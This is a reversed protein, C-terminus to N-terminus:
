QFKSLHSNRVSTWSVSQEPFAKKLLFEPLADSGEVKVGFEGVTKDSKHGREFVVGNPWGLNGLYTNKLVELESNPEGLAYPRTDVLYVPIKPNLRKFTGLYGDLLRCPSCHKGSEQIALKGEPILLKGKDTIPGKVLGKTSTLTNNEESILIEGSVKGMPLKSADVPTILDGDGKRWLKRKEDVPYFFLEEKKITSSFLLVVTDNREEALRAELETVSHISDDVALVDDAIENANEETLIAKQNRRESKIWLTYLKGNVRMTYACGKASCVTATWGLEEAELDAKSISYKNHLEAETLLATNVQQTAWEKLQENAKLLQSPSLRSKKDPPPEALSSSGVIGIFFILLLKAM